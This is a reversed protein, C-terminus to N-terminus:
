LNVQILKNRNEAGIQLTISIGYAKDWYKDFNINSIHKIHDSDQDKYLSICTNTYLRNALNTDPMSAAANRQM